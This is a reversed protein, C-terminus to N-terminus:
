GEQDSKTIQELQEPRIGGPHDETFLKLVAGDGSEMHFWDFPEGNESRIDTVHSIFYVLAKGVQEAKESTEASAIKEYVGGDKDYGYIHFTNKNM